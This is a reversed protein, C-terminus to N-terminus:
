GVFFMLQGGCGRLVCEVDTLFNLDDVNTSVIFFGFLNTNYGLRKRSKFHTNKVYVPNGKTSCLSLMRIVPRNNFYKLKVFIGTNQIGYGDIYGLDYLISCAKLCNKNRFRFFTKDVKKKQANKIHSLLNALHDM